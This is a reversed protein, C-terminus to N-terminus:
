IWSPDNLEDLVRERAEDLSDAEITHTITRKNTDVTFVVEISRIVEVM